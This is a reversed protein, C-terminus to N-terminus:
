PLATAVAAPLSRHCPHAAVDGGGSMSAAPRQTPAKARPRAGPREYACPSIQCIESICMESAHCAAFPACASEDSSHALVLVGCARRGRCAPTSTALQM